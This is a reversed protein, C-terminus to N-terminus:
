AAELLGQGTSVIESITAFRKITSDGAGANSALTPNELFAAGGSGVQDLVVATINELGSGDGAVIGSIIEGLGAVNLRTSDGSLNEAINTPSYAAATVTWRTSTSTIVMPNVDAVPTTFLDIEDQSGFSEIEYISIETAGLIASGNVVAGTGNSVSEGLDGQEGAGVLIRKNPLTRMIAEYFPLFASILMPEFTQLKMTVKKKTTTYRRM